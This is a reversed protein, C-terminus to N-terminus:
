PAATGDLVQALHMVSVEPCFHRVQSRCSFGDSIVITGPESNRIAPVLVREALTKSIEYHNTEYGFAGAM